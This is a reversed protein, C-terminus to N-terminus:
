LALSTPTKGPVLLVNGHQLDGHAVGAEELRRAVRLWIQSLAELVAPRDLNERVFINLPLGEVWYMKLVPYWEGRIRVGEELFHFDVTFPLKVQQLHASVAQYREQLGRVQRPFCKVAWRNGTTSCRVEYVDAFNGSCPRPLGMANTVVEGERLEADGISTRLNQLAENFDQSLPWTMALVESRAHQFGSGKLR